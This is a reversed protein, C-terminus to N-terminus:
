FHFSAGLAPGHFYLRQVFQTDGQEFSLYRYALLLDGWDFSYGVAAWAQWTFKSTGTGADLYYRAFWKGDAFGVKGRVGVVGDWLDVRRSAAGTQAPLGEVPVEFSWDLRASIHTYRLGGLVDLSVDTRSLLTYNGTLSFMAGSLGTKTGTNIPVEDGSPGSVSTVKSSSGAFDCYVLDSALAWNGKRAEGALFLAAQLNKLYDSLEATSGGSGPTEFRLTTGVYPLWLYPTVTFQWPAESPEGHVVAGHLGALLAGATRIMRRAASQSRGAM